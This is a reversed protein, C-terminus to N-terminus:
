RVAYRGAQRRGDVLTSVQQGTLNYLDLDVHWNQPLAFRIVTGSNFPNPYNQELVFRRPLPATAEEIATPIQGETLQLANGAAIDLHRDVQGNPWRM